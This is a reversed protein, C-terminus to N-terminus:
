YKSNFITKLTSILGGKQQKAVNQLKKHRVNMLMLAREKKIENRLEDNLVSFPNMNNNNNNNNDSSVNNSINISNIDWSDDWLENVITQICFDKL